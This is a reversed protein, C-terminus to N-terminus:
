PPIVGREPTLMPTHTADELDAVARWADALLSQRAAEADATELEARILALRGTEGLEIRHRVRDEQARGTEIVADAAITAQLAAIGAAHAQRVEGIIAAQMSEFRRAEAERAARAEAIPGENRDFLPLVLAAGLRWINDAQDFFYGPTLTVDPYQGAIAERLVAESVAYRDLQLLIDARATLATGQLDVVGWRDAPPLSALDACDITAADFAAPAVGAAAALRVRLAPLRAENRAAALRIRSAELRLNSVEFGTAEGLAQHREILAVGGDYLELRRNLGDLERQTGCLELYRDRVASRLSWRGLDANRSAVRAEADAKEMRAARRSPPELVWSIAAGISWPTVGGGTDDHHEGGFEMGPNRQAAAMQKRAAALESEAQMLARDPHAYGAALILGTLDWQPLPWVAVNQGHAALWSRLEPDDLRRGELRAVDAQAPLPRPEYTQWTCGGVAILALWAILASRWPMGGFSAGQADCPSATM